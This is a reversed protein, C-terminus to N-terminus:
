RRDLIENAVVHQHRNKINIKGVDSIWFQDGVFKLTDAGVIIKNPRAIEQLGSAVNVVDGLVTIEGQQFTGVFGAMVEGSNVGIGVNLKTEFRNSINRIAGLMKIAARIGCLSHDDVAKSMGFVAMIGDGLYKVLGKYNFIIKTLEKYYTDLVDGFTESGIDEALKTSDEIDIFLVTVNQKRLGPLHFSTSKGSLLYDAADPSVFRELLIRAQQEQRIKELLEMRQITLSAQHSIAIALQLDQQSFPLAGSNSKYMYLLAICKEEALVPVCLVSRVNLSYVSEGFEDIQNHNIEPLIFASKNMIASKAFTRPFGLVNLKDFQEPLIVQCKDAGMQMEILSSIARLATKVDVISNLQYAIEGLLISNQDLSRYLLDQTYSYFAPSADPSSDKEQNVLFLISGGIRIIDKPHLKINGNIKNRNVFIGNTSGLDYIYHSNDAQLYRIEGHERSVSDDDLVIQNKPSRGITTCDEEIPHVQPSANQSYVKIIWMNLSTILVRWM